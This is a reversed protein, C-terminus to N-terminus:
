LIVQFGGVIFMTVFNMLFWGGAMNKMVKEHTYTDQSNLKVDCITKYIFLSMLFQCTNLRLALFGTKPTELWTRCLGAHAIM